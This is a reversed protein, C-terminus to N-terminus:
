LCVTWVKKVTKQHEEELHPKKAPPEGTESAVNSHTDPKTQTAVDRCYTMEQTYDTVSNWTVYCIDDFGM